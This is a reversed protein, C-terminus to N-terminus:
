NSGFLVVKGHFLTGAVRSAVAILERQGQFVKVMRASSFDSLNVARGNRIYGAIEDTVTVSPMEPMLRRPHILCKLRSDGLSDLQELTYADEIAFEGARTRRLGSLHAGVGLQRGLDHALSRIYTGSSVLARFRVRGSAFDAMEFAYVEVPVAAIEVPRNKRAHKYAPVGKIKKASYPPPTQLLKGVFRGSVELIAQLTIGETKCAATIPEGDADYTDTAFGFRIEGEYGKITDGYFQALRTYRGLVLPLVGTAMPDLTGLHGVSKEGFIRRVRAVVDHSTMGSPKDVVLAGNVM